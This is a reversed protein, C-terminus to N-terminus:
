KNKPICPCLDKLEEYNHKGEIEKCGILIKMGNENPVDECLRNGCKWCMPIRPVQKKESEQSINGIGEIVALIEKQSRLLADISLNVTNEITLENDGVMEFIETVIFVFLTDGVPNDRDQVRKYLQTMNEYDKPEIALGSNPFNDVIIKALNM